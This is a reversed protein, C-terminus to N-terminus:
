RDAIREMCILLVAAVIGMVIGSLVFTVGTPKLEAVVGTGVAGLTFLIFGLLRIKTSNEM